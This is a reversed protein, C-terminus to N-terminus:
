AHLWGTQDWSGAWLGEKDECRADLTGGWLTKVNSAFHKGAKLAVQFWVPHTQSRSNSGGM